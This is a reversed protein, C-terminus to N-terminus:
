GARKTQRGTKAASRRPRRRSEKAASRGSGAGSRQRAPGASRDAWYSVQDGAKLRLRAPEFAFTGLFEGRFAEDPSSRKLLPDISLTRHDATEARLLVERLAFDPDVARVRLALRGRLPVDVSPQEPEVIQVKPPQDAIVEIGHRIPWRNDRGAEDTFRLQYSQHEPRSHDENFRLTLRGTASPGKADMLLGRVGRCDLDIEAHRIDENATAYITVQTGELARLDPEREVARDGIGTYPPYHYEVREVRIAPATQVEIRYQPTRCDGAALFYRYDQQLGTSGPPLTASLRYDNGARSMPIAQDVV